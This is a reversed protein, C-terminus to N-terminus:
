RLMKCVDPTQMIEEPESFKMTEKFIWRVEEIFHQKRELLDEESLVVIKQAM